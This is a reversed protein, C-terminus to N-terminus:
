NRPRKRQNKQRTWGDSKRKPTVEDEDMEEVSEAEGVGDLKKKSSKRRKKKGPTKFASTAASVSM